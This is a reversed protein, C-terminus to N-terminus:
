KGLGHCISGIVVAPNGSVKAFPPVDHTVVSGAGVVACKGITVGPLIISGCGIFAGDEICVKKKSSSFGVIKAQEPTPNWHSLITCRRTLYVGDGIEILEPFISDILVGPAIYVNRYNKIKVGRLKHLIPSLWLPWICVQALYAYLGKYLFSLDTLYRNKMKVESKM